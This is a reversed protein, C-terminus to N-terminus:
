GTLARRAGEGHLTYITGGCFALIPLALLVIGSIAAIWNGPTKDPIEKLAYLRYASSLLVLVCLVWCFFELVWLSWSKGQLVGIGGALGAIWIVLLALDNFFGRAAYRRALGGSRFLFYLILVGIGLAAACVLAFVWGILRLPLPEV